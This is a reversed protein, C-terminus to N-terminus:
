GGVTINGVVVVPVPLRHRRLLGSRYALHRLWVALRYILSVPTLLILWPNRTYWYYELRRM